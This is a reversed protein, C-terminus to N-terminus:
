SGPVRQAVGSRYRSHKVKVKVKKDGRFLVQFYVIELVLFTDHPKWVCLKLQMKQFITHKINQIECVM